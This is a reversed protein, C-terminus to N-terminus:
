YKGKKLHKKIRNYTKPAIRSKQKELIALMKTEIEKDKQELIMLEEHTYIKQGPEYGPGNSIETSEEFPKVIVYEKGKYITTGYGYDIIEQQTEKTQIPKNIKIPEEDPIIVPSFGGNMQNIRSAPAHVLNIGISCLANKPKSVKINTTSLYTVGGIITKTM